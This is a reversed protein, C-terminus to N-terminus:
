GADLDARQVNAAIKRAFGSLNLQEEIMQLNLTSKIGAEPFSLRLNVIRPEARPKLGDIEM